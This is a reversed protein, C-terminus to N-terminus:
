RVPAPPAPAASPAASLVRRHEVVWRRFAGQYLSLPWPQPHSLFWCNHFAEFWAREILPANSAERERGYGASPYVTMEGLYIDAGDVLFDVRVHDIGRSLRQALGMAEFYSPPLVYDAPLHMTDPVGLKNPLRRGAGDFHAQRESDAHQDLSVFGASVVGDHSRFTYEVLGAGNGIRPEVFLRRPIDRYAWQDQIYHSRQLWSHLLANLETRPLPTREPFHNMRFGHSAKVVNGPVVLADPLEEPTTGVWIPMAVRIDPFHEAAWYKTALKDSFLTFRPDHDFIKRWQVLDTHETPQALNPLRGRRRRFERRLSRYLLLCLLQVVAFILRDTRSTGSGSM